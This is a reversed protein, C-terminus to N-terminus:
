FTIDFSGSSGYASSSVPIQFVSFKVMTKMRIKLILPNSVEKGVISPDVKEPEESVVLQKCSQM